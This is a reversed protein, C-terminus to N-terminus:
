EYSIKITIYNYNYVNFSLLNYSKGNKSIYYLNNQIYKQNLFLYYRADNFDNSYLYFITIM